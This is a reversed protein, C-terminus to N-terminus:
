IGGGVSEGAGHQPSESHETIVESYIRRLDALHDEIPRPRSISNALRLALGPETAMRHMAALLAAEDGAPVLLGGGSGVLESLGGLDTAIVPTGAVFAEQVSLPANERWISPVVLCDLESLVQSVVDPAVEGLFRIGPHTTIGRLERVYGPDDLLSGYISLRADPPMDRFASVLHHVGKHPVLSGLYGFSAALKPMARPIEQETIPVGLPVVRVRQAPFGFDLAAEALDRSPALFLDVDDALGRMARWRREIRRAGLPTPWHRALVGRISSLSPRTSGLSPANAKGSAVREIRADSHGRLVRRIGPMPGVSAWTCRGCTAADLRECRTRDPHFRQGGNACSWWHDHLTMVIPIRKERAVEVLSLTLNMLHQVHLIDPEFDSLLSGFSRQLRVDFWSQSFTSFDRNQVVEYVPIGQWTSEVFEGTRRAPAVTASVLGVEDDRCQGMLLRSTYVEVGAVQQPLFSHVSHLIRM